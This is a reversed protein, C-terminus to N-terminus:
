RNVKDALNSGNAAERCVEALREAYEIQGRLDTLALINM